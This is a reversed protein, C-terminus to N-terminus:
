DTAESKAIGNKSAKSPFWKCTCRAIAVNHLGEVYSHHQRREDCIAFRCPLHQCLHQEHCSKHPKSTASTQDPAPFASCAHCGVPTEAITPMVSWVITIQVAIQTLLNMDETPGHQNAPIHDGALVSVAAGVM